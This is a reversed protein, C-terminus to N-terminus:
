VHFRRLVGWVLHQVPTLNAGLQDAQEVEAEIRAKEAAIWPAAMAEVAEEYLARAVSLEILGDEAARSLAGPNAGITVASTERLMFKTFVFRAKRDKLAQRAYDPLASLEEETSLANVINAYPVGGGVSWARMYDEAYLLFLETAKKSPAFSVRKELGNLGEAGENHIQWTLTKGYVDDRRNHNKLIVPNRMYAQMGDAFASPLIIGGYSDVEHTSAMMSLERKSRDVDRTVQHEWCGMSRVSRLTDM